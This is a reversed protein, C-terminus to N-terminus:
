FQMLPIPNGRLITDEGNYRAPLVQIEEPRPETSATKLGRVISQKHVFAEQPGPKAVWKKSRSLFKDGAQVAFGHKGKEKM